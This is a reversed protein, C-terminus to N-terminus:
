ELVISYTKEFYHGGLREVIKGYDLFPKMHFLIRQPNRKKIEETTWKIFKYGLMGQRYEPSIYIVDSSATISKKYHLHNVVVWLSYGILKGDDRATHIELTKAKYLLNYREINPDLEIVDQREAVEEYHRKFLEVAEDAFPSPAEQQFTIV